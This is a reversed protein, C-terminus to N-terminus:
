PHSPTGPGGPTGPNYPSGPTGPAGPNGPTGPFGPAGPTGPAGPAGPTGPYIPTAGADTIPSGPMPNPLGYGGDANSQAFATSGRDCGMLALAGFLAGAISSTLRQM